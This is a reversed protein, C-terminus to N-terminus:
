FDHFSIQIQADHSSIGLNKTIYEIIFSCSLFYSKKEKKKRKKQNLDMSLIIILLLTLTSTNDILINYPLVM